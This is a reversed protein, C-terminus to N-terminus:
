GDRKEWTYGLGYVTHIFQPKGPDEEIKNRLRRITVSLANEDVFDGGDSWIRDLLIERTLM